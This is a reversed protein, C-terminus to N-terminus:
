LNFINKIVLGLNYGLNNKDTVRIFKCNLIEKIEKERGKHAEYTYNNHSDEDYEIAINLSPIYYDIRYNLINYQRIGKINFPKLANELENLFLIEKRTSNFVEDYSVFGKEVLWEIFKLKNETHSISILKKLDNLNIFVKHGGLDCVTLEVNEIIKNIRSKHPYLKGKAKNIYGLAMGTSYVEFLVKGDIELIEVDMDQFKFMKIENSM